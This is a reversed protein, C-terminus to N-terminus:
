RGVQLCAPVGAAVPEVGSGLQTEGARDLRADLVGKDLPGLVALDDVVALDRHEVDEGVRVVHVHGVGVVPRRDLADHGPPREGHGHLALNEDELDLTLM